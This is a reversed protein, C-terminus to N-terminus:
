NGRYHSCIHNINNANKTTGSKWVHPKYKENKRLTHIKSVTTIGKLQVAVYTPLLELELLWRYIVTGCETDQDSDM